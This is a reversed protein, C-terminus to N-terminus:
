GRVEKVNVSKTYLNQNHHIITRKLSKSLTSKLAAGVHKEFGNGRVSMTKWKLVRRSSDLCKLHVNNNSGLQKAPAETSNHVARGVRHVECQHWCSTANDGIIHVDNMSEATRVIHTKSVTAHASDRGGLRKRTAAHQASCADRDINLGNTRLM